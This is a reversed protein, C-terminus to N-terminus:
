PVVFDPGPGLLAETGHPRRHVLGVVALPRGGEMAEAATSAPSRGKAWSSTLWLKWSPASRARACCWAAGADGKSPM